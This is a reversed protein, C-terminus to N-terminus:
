RTLVIKGFHGGRQMTRLAEPLGDFRMQRDIVPRIQHQALFRALTEFSERSGVLIGILRIAKMMLLGTNINAALGTLAGMLSITGGARTAAISQNLTEGGATEVTVDAGLGGTHELVLQEWNPTTRYNIGIDAGLGKARALKEDSSSTVIVRAGLAKAIQVAFISVGGTGLTLVTQGRQVGGTEVLANWATLAAIPLTAAEGYEYGSPLPLLAEAPLAVQEAALGPGPTGLTSRLYEFRYPGSTWQPVFHTMVWDGPQVRTVGPGVAMVVGAGDSIPTCPLRLKPNYVGRVVMLDRYNLSIARVDLVAEGAGPRPPELEVPVLQEIGFKNLRYARM